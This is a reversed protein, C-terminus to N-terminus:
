SIWKFDEDSVTGLEKGKEDYATVFPIGVYKRKATFDYTIWSKYWTHSHLNSSLVKIRGSLKNLKEQKTM